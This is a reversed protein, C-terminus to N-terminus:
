FTFVWMIAKRHINVGSILNKYVLIKNKLNIDQIYIKIANKIRYSAIEFAGCAHQLYAFLMSGTAVISFFGICISANFHFLMLYYYKEQDIFYETAISLRRPQSENISLIINIFDPWLQINIIIFLSCVLCIIFAITYCKAINGYREFIAIENNDKLDDYIFQVQEM